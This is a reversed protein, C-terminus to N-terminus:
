LRAAADAVVALLYEIDFPKPIVHVNLQALLAGYPMYLAPTHGTLMIYSRSDPALQGDYNAVTRLISIGNVGPLSIDLLVVLPAPHQQILALAQHGDEAFLVGYGADELLVQLTERIDSDDDAILIRTM